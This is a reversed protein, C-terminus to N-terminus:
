TFYKKKLYLVATKIRTRLAIKEKIHFYIDTNSKYLYSIYNLLNTRAITDKPMEHIYLAYRNIETDAPGIGSSFDFTQSNSILQSAYGNDVNASHIGSGDFGCNRVLSVAPKLQYTNSVINIVTRKVDGWNAKKKVMSDLSMYLYPFADFVKKGDVSSHVIRKFFHLNDLTPQIISEKNFWFGVGWACNDWSIYHSYEGQNYAEIFNYGGVTVIQQNDRFKELAKNMYDLFSPSFINDDETAIYADYHKACYRALFKWNADPGLNHDHAFVTVHAFRKITPIYEKILNYGKQYKEEPPYDLGIVLETKDAHTCNALSEVCNKFHSFRNLTPIIVPYYKM